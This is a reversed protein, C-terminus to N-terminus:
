HLFTPGKAVWLAAMLHAPQDSDEILAFTLEYRKSSVMKFSKM